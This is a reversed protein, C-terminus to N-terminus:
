GEASHDEPRPVTDRLQGLAQLARPTGVFPTTLIIADRLELATIEQSLATLLFKRLVTPTGAVTLGAVACLLRQRLSLGPRNWIHGYGNLAIREYLPATFVDAPDAHDTDHRESHLKRRTREAAAALDGTEMIEGPVLRAEAADLAHGVADLAPELIAFGAYLTTQLCLECIARADLGADLARRTIAPLRHWSGVATAASIQIAVGDCEPLLGTARTVDEEFALVVQLYEALAHQPCEPEPGAPQRLSQRRPQYEREPSM